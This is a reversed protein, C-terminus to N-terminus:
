MGLILDYAKQAQNASYILAKPDEKIFQLWHQLYAVSNNVQNEIGVYACLLCATFEAVLEERSYVESGFKAKTVLEPRNLRDRHGTSHGLEHFLTAYYSESSDFYEIRPIEVKDISPIYCARDIGTEVIEPGNEYGAIVDECKELRVKLSEIPSDGLTDLELGETQELNFVTYTQM